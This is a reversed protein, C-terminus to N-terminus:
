GNDAGGKFAQIGYYNETLYDIIPSFDNDDGIKQWDENFYIKASNIYSQEEAYEILCDRCLIKNCGEVYYLNDSDCCRDCEVDNICDECIPYDSITSVNDQGKENIDEYCISCIM